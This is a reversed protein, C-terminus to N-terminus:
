LSAIYDEKTAFIRDEPVWLHTWRTPGTEIEFSYLFGKLSDLNNEELFASCVGTIVLDQLVDKKSAYVVQGVEYKSKNQM